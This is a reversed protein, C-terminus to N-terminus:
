QASSGNASFGLGASLEMPHVPKSVGAAGLFSLCSAEVYLRFIHYSYLPEPLYIGMM